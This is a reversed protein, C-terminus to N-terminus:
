GISPSEWAVIAVRSGTPLEAAIKEASQEIAEALSVGDGEYVPEDAPPAAQPAQYPAAPRSGTTACAVFFVPLACLFVLFAKKM